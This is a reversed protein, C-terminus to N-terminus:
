PLLFVTNIGSPFSVSSYQRFAAPIEDFNAILLSRPSFDLNLLPLLM